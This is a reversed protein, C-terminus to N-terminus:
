ESAKLFARSMVILESSLKGDIKVPYGKKSLALQLDLIESSSLKASTEAATKLKSEASHAHLLDHFGTPTHHKGTMHAQRLHAADLLAKHEELVREPSKRGASPAKISAKPEKPKSTGSSKAAKVAGRGIGRAVSRLVYHNGNGRFLGGGGGRLLGGGLLGGGLSGLHSSSGTSTPAKTAGTAKPTTTKPQAAKTTTPKATTAKPQAAKTTTPQATSATKPSATKAAASTSSKPATSTKATAAAAKPATASSAAPSKPTVTSSTAPKTSAATKPTAATKAASTAAKTAASATKSAATSAAKAASAQAKAIATQSAIQAKQLSAATAAHQKAIAANSAVSKATVAAGAQAAKAEAALASNSVAPKSSPAATYPRLPTRGLGTSGITVPNTSGMASAVAENAYNARRNAALGSRLAGGPNTIGNKPGPAGRSAASVTFSKGSTSTKTYSRVPVSGATVALEIVKELNTQEAEEKDPM